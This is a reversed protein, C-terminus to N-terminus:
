AGLSLEIALLFAECFAAGGFGIDLGVLGYWDWTM